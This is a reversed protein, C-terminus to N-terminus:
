IRMFITTPRMQPPQHDMASVQSLRIMTGPIRLKDQPCTESFSRRKRLTSGGILNELNLDGTQHTLLIIPFIIRRNNHRIRNAMQPKFPCIQHSNSHHPLTLHTPIFIVPFTNMPKLIVQRTNTPTIIVQLQVMLTLIFQSTIMPTIPNIKFLDDSDMHNLLIYEMEKHISPFQTIKMTTNISPYTMIASIIPITGKMIHDFLPPIPPDM